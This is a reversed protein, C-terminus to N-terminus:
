KFQDPLIITHVRQEDNSFLQLIGQDLSGSLGVARTRGAHTTIMVDQSTEAYEREPYITISPTRMEYRRGDPYTQVMLVDEELLVEEEGSARREAANRITGRRATVRWPPTPDDHLELDPDTLYALAQQQHHEIWPSRLLYKVAGTEGYQTIVADEIMLDPEASSTPTPRAPAEVAFPDIFLYAALILSGLLAFGVFRLDLLSRRGM